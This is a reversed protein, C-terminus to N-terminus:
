LTQSAEYVDEYDKDDDEYSRLYNGQMALADLLGEKLLANQGAREDPEEGEFMKRYPCELNTRSFSSGLRQTIDNRQAMAQLLLRSDVQSHGGSLFVMFLEPPLETRELIKQFAEASAQPDIKETECQTGPTPFSTKVFFPHKDLGFRKIGTYMEGLVRTMLETNQELTGPNDKIFEPELVAAIQGNNAAAMQIQAMQAALDEANERLVCTATSRIKVVHVGIEVLRQMEESLTHMDEEPILGTNKDLGMKKGITLVDNEALRERLPVGQADVLNHQDDHVIAAGFYTGLGPTTAIMQRVATAKSEFDADDQVPVGFQAFHKKHTGGSQDMALFHPPRDPHTMADMTEEFDLSNM